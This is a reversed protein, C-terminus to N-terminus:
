PATSLVVTLGWPDTFRSADGSPAIGRRALRARIADVDAVAPVVLDWELLRSEAASPVPAGAQWANLGVHHHYGGASVFLAGPLSAMRDMGLGDCYFRSAADLDDTNFHVHGLVTGAPVGAWAAHPLALLERLRLPITALRVEPGDYTWADRPRDAYVEVTLGDPDTLYLAESALHDAAGFRIGRRVAHEVFSALDARSPLLVATHYLGLRPLDTIPRVGPREELELFAPAGGPAGLRAVPHSRSGSELVHLGIVGGYFAVARELNSVILRARGIRTADPLRHDAPPIAHPHM